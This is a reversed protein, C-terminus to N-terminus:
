PKRHVTQVYKIETEFCSWVVRETTGIKMGLFIGLEYRMSMKIPNKRQFEGLEGFPPLPVKWHKGRWRYYATLGDGGATRKFLNLLTASHEVIWAM